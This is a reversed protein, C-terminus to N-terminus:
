ANVFERKLLRELEVIRGMAQDLESRLKANESRLRGNEEALSDARSNMHKMQSELAEYEKRPVPGKREQKVDDSPRKSTENEIATALMTRLHGSEWQVRNPFHKLMTSCDFWTLGYDGLKGNIHSEADDIVGNHHALFEPDDWVQKLLTTRDFLSANSGAILQDVQKLLVEWKVKRSM